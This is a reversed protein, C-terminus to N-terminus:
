WLLGLPQLADPAYAGPGSFFFFFYYYYYYYYYYDRSTIAVIAFNGGRANALVKTM